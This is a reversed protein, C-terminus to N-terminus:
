VGVGSRQGEKWQGTYKDGNKWTQVGQGDREDLVWNGEYKELGDEDEGAKYAGEGHRM